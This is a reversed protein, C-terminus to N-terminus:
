PLAESPEPRSTLVFRQLAVTILLACLAIGVLSGVRYLGGLRWLDHFACKAMAVSLLIIATIRGPKSHTIIGGALLAVAFIAWGLTYSLDQALASSFFDFTITPGTAFYDAIEINLLLFLLIIAGSPFLSSLRPMTSRIRDETRLLVRGGVLMAAACVLYTYLYWNWIRIEGRPEYRLVEPNLALRTFVVAFLGLTFLLLGKHPVRSYLWALAAGELAWGITIWNRELQLPIALTVFGLAAGAILALRAVEAPTRPEGQRKLRVLNALVLALFGAEIVPLAGILSGYGGAEISGRAQFFYLVSALVTAVYPARASGTRKGLVLPYAVFALYIPTTLALQSLSLGPETHQAMWLFGAAAAPLVAVVSLAELRVLDLTMMGLAAALFALQALLLVSLPPAASQGAAAAAVFQAGIGSVAGSAIFDRAEAGARRALPISFAGLMVLAGACLIAVFPWPAVAATWQWVIIVLTTAIIAGLFLEGRKVYLAGVGAALTLVALTALLPAPPVALKPEGAVFLLFFHGVLGVFAGSRFLGRVNDASEQRRVAWVSGAITLLSYGGVISLAPVLAIAVTATMWWVGLVLWALLTGAIAVIPLRTASAEAFLGTTLIALLIAIGWLASQAVAGGALFLLLAISVLALGSGAGQPTLPAGRRRSIVPMGIFFLGFLGYVLLAGLLQEPALYRASWVAEAAVAAFAAIFYVIGERRVIAHIACAALLVVLTGFILAPNATQKEIILLVPFAFLLLPAALVARSGLEGLEVEGGRRRVFQLQTVFPTGLYFLTFAAIAVLVSPWASVDYSGGLWIGFVLLTSIAGLLHLPRPGQFVAVAFLGLDLVFLYSFLVGFRAGYAPVAALYLSFLLPLAAGVRAAHGFLATTSRREEGEPRNLGLGVFGLIPFVLFIGAALPLKGATLFKSVWGWQYLTTLGLSLATLLPWRKKYAVWALGANLVLLYGFLGVPNDEGTAVIAPSAFGGLLGLLAILLSARRIALLVAVMTALAFLVFAATAGILHWRAFSAFFVVYLLSIGAADLADATWTYRRSAKLEGLVLCVVGAVIGIAFQIQPTLWGHEMSYSVFFGGALFLALSAVVAFFKV